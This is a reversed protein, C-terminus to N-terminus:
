TTRLKRFVMKIMLFITKLVGFIFFSYRTGFPAISQSLRYKDIINSSSLTGFLMNFLKLKKEEGNFLCVIASPCIFTKIGYKKVRMTFEDDCGYHIFSQCNYNGAQWFVEIPHLLCRATLFDVEILKTKEVECVDMGAYPHSTINLIWSRIVTGSKIIRNRNMSDVTLAGLIINRNNAIIQNRMTEITNEALETDNNVLLVFDGPGGEKLIVEIGYHIAGGWFLAGSGYLLKIDPHKNLIWESTGDTSGDDVVYITLEDSVSQRKISKICKKTLEIRNFVPILVYIM